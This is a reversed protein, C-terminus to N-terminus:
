THIVQALMQMTEIDMNRSLAAKDRFSEYAALANKEFYAQEDDTFPRNDVDVQLSIRANLTPNNHHTIM